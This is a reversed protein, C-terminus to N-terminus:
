FQDILIDWWFTTGLNFRFKEEVDNDSKSIVQSLSFSLPGVVTLYDIGIGISSRIKASDEISSDYDVGWINAADFFIVADLNQSNEFLIPLSSQLNISTIFNGGIFDNGDKPGVKGREFGRLKNSPISLRETM